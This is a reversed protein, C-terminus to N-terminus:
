DLDIGLDRDPAHDTLYERLYPLEFDVYGRRPAVILGAVLLRARYQSAYNADVGLREAIDGVRSPGPDVVMAALFDRDRDSLKALSPEHVMQGLKAAVIPRAASVDDLTIETRDPHQRWVHYGVLQLAFPYHASLDVMVELTPDSVTRGHELIPVRLAEAVEVTNLMGLVHRDARRLFTIVPDRLLREDVAAPLGAAVFAVERDEGFCHQVVTAFERLEARDGGHVEDLTILVGAGRGAMLDLALSLMSRFSPRRPHTDDTDWSAGLGFPASISKLRSRNEGPNIEDLLAPLHDSTLRDILGPIATETIVWWGRQRAENAIERLLVTKGTGRAGTFL